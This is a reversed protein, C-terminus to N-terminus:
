RSIGDMGTVVGNSPADKQIVSAGILPQGDKDTVVGRVPITQARLSLGLLVLVATTLIRKFSLIQKM